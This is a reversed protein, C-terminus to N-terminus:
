GQKADMIVSLKLKAEYITFQGQEACPHKTKVMAIGIHEQLGRQDRGQSTSEHCRKQVPWPPWPVKTPRQRHGRPQSPRFNPNLIFVWFPSTELHKLALFRQEMWLWLTEGKDQSQQKCDWTESQFREYRSMANFWWMRMYYVPYSVITLWFQFDFGGMGCLMNFVKHSFGCDWGAGPTEELAEAPSCLALALLATSCSGPAWPKMPDEVPLHTFRPSFPTCVGSSHNRLGVQRNVCSFHQKFSSVVSFQFLYELLDHKM